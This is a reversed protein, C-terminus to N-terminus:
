IQSGCISYVGSGDEGDARFALTLCIRSGSINTSALIICSTSPVSVAFGAMAKITELSTDGDSPSHLLGRRPM